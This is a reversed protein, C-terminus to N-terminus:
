SSSDTLGGEIPAKAKESINDVQAIPQEVVTAAESLTEAGEIGQVAAPKLPTAEFEYSREVIAVDDSADSATEESVPEKSTSTATQEAGIIPQTMLPLNMQPGSPAPAIATTKVPIPTPLDCIRVVHINLRKAYNEIDYDDSYIVSVGEAKAIAVIQIDFKVKAWTGWQEKGAKVSAILDATEIAARSDFPIM